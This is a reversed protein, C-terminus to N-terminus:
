HIKCVARHVKPCISTEGRRDFLKEMSHILWNRDAYTGDMLEHSQCASEMSCMECIASAAIIWDAKGDSPNSARAVVIRDPGNKDNASNMERVFWDALKCARLADGSNSIKASGGCENRFKCSEGDEGDRCAYERRAECFKNMIRIQVSM